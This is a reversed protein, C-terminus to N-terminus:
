AECGHGHHDCGVQALLDCARREEVPDRERDLPAVPEREGPRVAGALRREQPHEGALGLDVAALERERLARPDRQVVLPRRECSPRDSRSYASDPAASRIAASSSSRVSSCAIASPRGRARSAAGSSPRGSGARARRRSRRARAHPQAHEAAEAEEIAVEVPRELREGAALQGAGRERPREGAIGVQQQEVLRRVVEVDLVELPELLLELREVRCDDEDRVVAPEEFRDVVATSSISAPRESKKEPGHCTQRRSFALRAAAAAFVASRTPVSM